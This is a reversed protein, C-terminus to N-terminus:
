FTKLKLPISFFDDNEKIKINIWFVDSCSEDTIQYIYQRLSKIQSKINKKMCNNLKYNKSECTWPRGRCSSSFTFNIIKYKSTDSVIISDLSMINNSSVEVIWDISDNLFGYKYAKIAQSVDLATIKKTYDTIVVIDQGFLNNAAITSVFLYFILIKKM